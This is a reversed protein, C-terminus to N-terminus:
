NYSLTYTLSGNASGSTVDSLNKNFQLTYFATMPLTYTKTAGSGNLTLNTFTYFGPSFDLVVSGQMLMIQVGQASQAGGTVAIGRGVRATPTLKLEVSSAGGSCSLVLNMAKGTVVGGPGFSPTLETGLENVGVTGMNYTLNAGSVTAGPDTVSCTVANLSGNFTINGSPGINYAAESLTSFGLTSLVAIGLIAKKM